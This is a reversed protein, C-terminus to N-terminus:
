VNESFNKNQADTKYTQVSIKEKFISLANEDFNKCLDSYTYHKGEAFLTNKFAKAADEYLYMLVKTKITETLYDIDGSELTSKSIFYPGILKDEPINLKSLRINVEMRFDNWKVMENENIKFYYKDFKEKNKDVAEDIGLYEFNWRRKFATDLPMVGQDASNMTAWIYLNNPLTLFNFGEGIKEFISPHFAEKDNAMQLFNQLDKSVNIKYESEGYVNRDLLQFLDGFVSSVNARNIEEIILLFNEHPNRYAEILINTLTGPIFDYVITEKINGFEDKLYDGNADIFRKPFPKFSGVFNGYSYNPHFTVRSSRNKFYKEALLNLKYSKGTGPAGFFILQRPMKIDNTLELNEDNVNNQTMFNIFHGIATKIKNIDFTSVKEGNNRAALLSNYKKDINSIILNKSENNMLLNPDHFPSDIKEPYYDNIRKPISNIASVYQLFSTINIDMLYKIFKEQLDEDETEFEDENLTNLYSVENKHIWDLNNLYFYIFERKFVCKYESKSVQQTFGIKYGESISNAKIQKSITSLGKSSTAEWACLLYEEDFYYIGLILPIYGNDKQSIIYNIKSTEPQIRHENKLKERGGPTTQRILAIYKKDNVYIKFIDSISKSTNTSFTDDIIIKVEHYNSTFVKKIDEIIQSESKLYNKKDYERNVIEGNSKSWMVEM